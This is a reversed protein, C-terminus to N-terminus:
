LGAAFNRVSGFGSQKAQHIWSDLEDAHKGQIMQVFQQVLYYFKEIEKSQMFLQQLLTQEEDLLKGPARMFMWTLQLVSHYQQGKRFRRLYRYVSKRKGEYGLSQIEKWLKTADRRGQAWRKRLYSEYRDIKSPRPVGKHYDPPTEREIYSRVTRRHIGLARAIARQSYGTAYLYRVMEFYKQRKQAAATKPQTELAGNKITKLAEPLTSHVRERLNNL